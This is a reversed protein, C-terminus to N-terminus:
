NWFEHIVNVKSRHEGFHPSFNISRIMKWNRSFIKHWMNGLKEYNLICNIRKKKKQKM